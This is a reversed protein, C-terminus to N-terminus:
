QGPRTNGKLYRAVRKLAMMSGTTPKGLMSGLISVVFQADTNYLLGALVSGTCPSRLRATVLQEKHTLVSPTPVDKLRWGLCRSRKAYARGETELGLLELM